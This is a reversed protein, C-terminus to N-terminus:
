ISLDTHGELRYIITISQYLFISIIILITNPNAIRYPPAKIFPDIIFDKEDPIARANMIAM